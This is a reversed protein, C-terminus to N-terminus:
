WLQYSILCTTSLIVRLRMQGWLGGDPDNWGSLEYLEKCLELSAVNMEVAGPEWSYERYSRYRTNRLKELYGISYNEGAFSWGCVGNSWNIYSIDKTTKIIFGTREIRLSRIPFVLRDIFFSIGRLYRWGVGPRKLTVKVSNLLLRLGLPYQEKLGTYQM